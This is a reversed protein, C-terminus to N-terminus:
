VGAGAGWLVWLVGVVGVRVGLFFCGGEGGGRKGVRLLGGMMVQDFWCEM